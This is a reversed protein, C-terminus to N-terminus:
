DVIFLRKPRPLLSLIEEIKLLRSFSILLLTFCGAETFFYFLQTGWQRPLDQPTPMKCIFPCILATLGYATVSVASIKLFCSLLRKGEGPQYFLRGRKHLYLFLCFCNILTSLSTALAISLAGWKLIFLAISNFLINAIVAVMALLTPIKWNQLAFFASGLILVLTMPLLATAYALLSFTVEYTAKITFEGHGYVGNVLSLGTAFIFLTAPIMFAMARKIAFHLFSFYREQEQGQVARSIAPLLAGTLAVGFLALPLQQLRLAYWLLAPGEPDAIRAFISDIASNIQTAAVGCMGFLLPKMLTMLSRLGLRDQDPQAPIQRHLNKVAPVTVLWQAAFAVVIFIALLFIAKSPEQRWVCAIAIVWVINLATPAFSPLFFSKECNLYAANIGYLCIFIIAPLMVMTLGLVERNASSGDTFYLITGLVVEGVLVVGLLLNLLGRSINRFFYISEEPKQSRLAEFRPIFAAHFSGEGLMRRLLNAFRFAMWFAAVAPITGFAAAMAIERALGALRSLLTGSFFNKASSSITKISDTM